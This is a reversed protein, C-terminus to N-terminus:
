GGFWHEKSRCHSCVYELVEFLKASLMGIEDIILVESLTINKLCNGYADNNLVNTLVEEKSFRGDFLGAWHHLTEGGLDQYQKSALGTVATIGVKRGASKLAKIINRLTYTKGTGCQGTILLNHGSLAIDLAEKQELNM